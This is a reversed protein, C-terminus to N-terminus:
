DSDVRWSDLQWPAEKSDRRFVYRLKSTTGSQQKVCVLERRAPFTRNEMDAEPLNPILRGKDQKALGPLEGKDKLSAFCEEATGGPQSFYVYVVMRKQIPSFWRDAYITINKFTAKVFPSANTEIYRDFRRDVDPPPVGNRFGLADQLALAEAAAPRFQSTNRFSSWLETLDHGTAQAFFADNFKHKRLSACLDAIVQPGFRSELYLLFAGGCQYGFTYHPYRSNCEACMYGNTALLKFRAYDALSEQWADKKSKGLRIGHGLAMHTMEHTLVHDLVETSGLLGNTARNFESDIYIRHLLYLCEANNHSKLPQIVFDFHKPARSAEGPFLALIQPYVRNGFDRCHEALASNTPTSVFTISRIAPSAAQQNSGHSSPSTCGILAFSAAAVNLLIFTNRKLIDAAIM